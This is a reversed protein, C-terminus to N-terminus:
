GLGNLDNGRITECSPCWGALCELDVCTCEDNSLMIALAKAAQEFYMYQGISNLEERPGFKMIYEKKEKDLM